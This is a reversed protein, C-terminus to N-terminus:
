VNWAGRSATLIASVDSFFPYDRRLGYVRVETARALLPRLVQDHIPLVQKPRVRAPAWRILGVNFSGVRRALDLNLMPDVEEVLSHPEPESSAPVVTVQECYQCRRGQGAIEAPALRRRGCVPCNYELVQVMM